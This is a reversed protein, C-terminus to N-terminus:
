RLMFVSVTAKDLANLATTTRKFALPFLSLLIVVIMFYDYISSALDNGTSIEIIEFLRKRIKM